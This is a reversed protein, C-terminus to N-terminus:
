WQNTHILKKIEMRTTSHIPGKPYGIPIIAVPRIHVPLNLINIVASEDFAGIWCSALGYDVALLLIHEVAAAADQICYLDAGRKGYHKIRDLNACVVIDVPAQALFAQGFAAECLMQKVRQNDVVIFDRAQLNGASPAMHSLLIIDRIIDYPVKKESFNRVSHRRYIADKLEM